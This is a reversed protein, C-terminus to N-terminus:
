LTWGTLAIYPKLNERFHSHLIGDETINIRTAIRLVSTESSRIVEMMLTALIQSSLAVSVTVLLRIV